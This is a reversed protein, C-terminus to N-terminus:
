QNNVCVCLNRSQGGSIFDAFYDRTYKGSGNDTAYLTLSFRDFLAVCNTIILIDLFSTEFKEVFIHSSIRLVYQKTLNIKIAQM